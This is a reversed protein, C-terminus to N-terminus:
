KPIIFKKVFNQEGWEDSEEHGLIAWGESGVMDTPQELSSTDMDFADLFTKLKWLSDPALSVYKTFEKPNNPQDLIQFRPLLYPEDNKNRPMGDPYSPDTKVDVIRIKYEAGGPVANPAQVDDLNLNDLFGM